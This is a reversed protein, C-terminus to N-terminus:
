LRSPPDSGEEPERVLVEGGMRYETIVRGGEILFSRFCGWRRCVGVVYDPDPARVTYLAVFEGGCPCPGLVRLRAGCSPCSLELMAGEPFAPGTKRKDGQFPSLTLTGQVDRWRAHLQIGPFGDFKPAEEHILPCGNPCYAGTLLVLNPEPLEIAGSGSPEGKRFLKGGADQINVNSM